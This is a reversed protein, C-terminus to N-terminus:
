GSPTTPTIRATTKRRLSKTRGQSMGPGSASGALVDEDGAVVEGIGRDEALADVFDRRLAVVM